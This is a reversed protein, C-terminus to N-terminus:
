AYHAVEETIKDVIAQVYGSLSKGEREARDQLGRLVPAPLKLKVKGIKMDALERAAEVIRMSERAGEPLLLAEVLETTQAATLVMAKPDALPVARELVRTIVGELTHQVQEERRQQHPANPPLAALYRDALDDSITLRM